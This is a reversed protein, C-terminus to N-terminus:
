SRSVRIHTGVRIMASVINRHKTHKKGYFGTVVFVGPEHLLVWGVKVGEKSSVEYGWGEGCGPTSAGQVEFKRMKDMNLSRFDLVFGLEDDALRPPLSPDSAIWEPAVDMAGDLPAFVGQAIEPTEVSTKAPPQGISALFLLVRAMEGISSIHFRSTAGDTLRTIEFMENPSVSGNFAEVAALVDDIAAGEVNISDGGAIGVELKTGKLRTRLGDKALKKIREGNDKFGMRWTGTCEKASTRGTGSTDFNLYMDITLRTLAVM